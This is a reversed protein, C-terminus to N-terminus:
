GAAGYRALSERRAEAHDVIPEPYDRGIVCGAQQQVDAPMRWPEALFEGPVEQLEPVYRCLYVRLYPSLRSTGETGPLDNVDAYDRVPGDLFRELRRRGATEGGPPPDATNSELGLAALSPVRGVRMRSPLAPLATPASLVDRRPARLWARHFPSFVKYPKVWALDDVAHLGPRPRLRVALAARV